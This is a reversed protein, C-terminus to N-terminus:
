ICKVAIISDARREEADLLFQDIEETRRFPNALREEFYLGDHTKSGFFAKIEASM